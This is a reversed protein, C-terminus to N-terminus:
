QKRTEPTYHAQLYATIQKAADDPIQAGFTKIMKQVEAEWTAAPLPPQMTIYTSSHCVQCYGMVLEKGPGDALEPTYLPWAGVSYVGDPQANAVPLPQLVQGLTGQTYNGEEKVGPLSSDQAMVWVGLLVLLMWYYRKM